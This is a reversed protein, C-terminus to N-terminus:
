LHTAKIAGLMAARFLTRDLMHGDPAYFHCHSAAFGFNAMAAQAEEGKGWLSIFVCRPAANEARITELEWATGATVQSVDVVIVDASDLLLRAVMKWWADSTRVLFAEKSTLATQLNLGVRNRLRKALNRYDRANLVVAPGMASRDFLRVVFRIPAGIILWAAALPNSLSLVATSLWGWTDRRIHKDSLSCIHGYPRMENSIAKELAEGIARVNFKRLLLVRAPKPRLATALFWILLPTLLTLAAAAGYRYAWEDHAEAILGARRAAVLDPTLNSSRWMGCPYVKSSELVSSQAGNTACDRVFPRAGLEDIESRLTQDAFGAAIALGVFFLFFAIGSWKRLARGIGFFLREGKALDSPEIFGPVVVRWAEVAGGQARLAAESAARGAESHDPNQAAANLAEADLRALTAADPPDRRLGARTRMLRLKQRWASM